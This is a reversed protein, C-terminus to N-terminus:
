ECLHFMGKQLALNMLKENEKRLRILEYLFHLLDWHHNFEESGPMSNLCKHKQILIHENLDM